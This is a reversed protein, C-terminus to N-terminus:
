DSLDKDAEDLKYKEFKNTEDSLIRLGILEEETLPTLVGGLIDIDRRVWMVRNVIDLVNDYDEYKDYLRDLLVEMFNNSEDDDYDVRKEDSYFM